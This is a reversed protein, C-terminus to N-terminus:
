LKFSTGQRGKRQQKPVQMGEEARETNNHGVGEIGGGEVVQEFALSVGVAQSVDRAWGQMAAAAVQM